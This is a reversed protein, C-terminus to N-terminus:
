QDLAFEHVVQALADLADRGSGFVIRDPRVVVLESSANALVREAATGPRAEIVTAGLRSLTSLHSDALSEGAAAIVAWRGDLVDDLTRDDVWGDSVVYGGTETVLSTGTLTPTSTGGVDTPDAERAALMMRDRGAAEDADLTCIIRGFGIAAEVISRVHPSREPQYSDLLSDRAGRCVATLKWALNVADRIGSCMGQGLFPPMQHAADGALIVRGRRWETAILGHFTYVASREITVSGIPLHPAMWEEIVEPRNVDDATEGPLLMFEFRQRTGPMPVITHPRAPDCVQVTRTPRTVAPDNVIVDVVLWPEDFGLDIQEVGLHRRVFSRAGCCGVVWSASVTVDRGDHSRASVTVDDASEAISTVDHGLLLTAGHAIARERILRDLSPQHFLNSQPVTHHAEDHSTMRLLLSGDATLFDMGSNSISWDPAASWAGIERLNRVTEADCHAARPLAYVDLDRELIVVSLGRAALSGALTSGVPGAGVIAVDYRM